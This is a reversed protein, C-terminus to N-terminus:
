MGKFPNMGLLNIEELYHDIIQPIKDYENIELFVTKIREPELMMKQLVEGINEARKETLESGHIFHCQYNEGPKCGFLLIGDFGKSLADSIWIKNVSGLCRVPIIRVFASYKLKKSAAMDFAPYADNECVFALIRPKEEFEDPMSVSKIMESVSQINFNEFSIVREPCAGMCIACRRCRTHNIIPTGKENEDYMGFPCEETCRKCDTCRLFNIEPSSKDGLRPHLTEGRKVLEICQIAKMMAGGADAMSETIDMPARVTGTSFIGTRRTEYPFCIFHSDTFNYKLVPLEEGLRYNLHLVHDNNPQMGTALVVMDAEIVIDEGFLTDKVSINLKKDIEEIKNIEGKTLFVLDDNQIEKYFSEMRGSARIDNYIIFVSTEALSERIYRSQKLTNNCCFNSCYPLHNQKRSGACQIFLISEPQQGDSPKLIKGEKVMSELEISSIVNQFIGYGLETLNQAEYPKFGSALIISGAKKEIIQENQKIKLTFCGPQGSTKIIESETLCEINAFQSLEQLKQPLINDTLKTFPPKMPSLKHLNKLWGGLEKEKEVLLIQYGAHAGEIAAQIGSIGGGAVCITESINEPVFGEPNKIYALKALSMNIYDEALTMTDEHKKQHPYCVLERLSVRETKIGFDFEKAFYRPSCAAVILSDINYTEIFDHIMKGSNCSCLQADHKVFVKDRGSYKTTIADIDLYDGIQCGTCILIGTNENM